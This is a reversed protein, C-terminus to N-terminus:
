YQASRRVMWYALYNGMQVAMLLETEIDMRQAMLPVLKVVSQYDLSKGMWKM